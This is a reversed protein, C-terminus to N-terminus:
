YNWSDYGRVGSGDPLAVPIQHGGHILEVFDISVDATSFTNENADTYDDAIITDGWSVSVSNVIAFMKVMGGFRVYCFPPKAVIGNYSPYVLSELQRVTTLFKDALADKYLKISYSVSRADNGSYNYYPASRGLVEHPSWSASFSESVSDPLTEFTITEDTIMNRIYCTIYESPNNDSIYKMKKEHKIRQKRKEEDSQGKGLIM